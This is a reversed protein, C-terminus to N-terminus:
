VPPFPDSHPLIGQPRAFTSGFSPRLGHGSPAGYDWRHLVGSVRPSRSSRQKGTGGGPPPSHTLSMYLRLQAGADTQSKECSVDLKRADGTATTSSSSSTCTNRRGGCTGGIRRLGITATHRRSLPGQFSRFFRRLASPNTECHRCNRLSNLRPPELGVRPREARCESSCLQACGSTVQSAADQDPLMITSSPPTNPVRLRREAVFIFPEPPDPAEPAEPAVPRRSFTLRRDDRM